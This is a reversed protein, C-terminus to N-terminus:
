HMFRQLDPPVSSMGADTRQDRIAHGVSDDRAVEDLTHDMETQTDHLVKLDAASTHIRPDLKVTLTQRDVKGDATLVVSYSGPLVLPGQPTHPTRHPVA